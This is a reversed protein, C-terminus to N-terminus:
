LEPLNYRKQLNHVKRIALINNAYLVNYNKQDELLINDKEVFTFVQQVIGSFEEKLFYYVWQDRKKQGLLGANKLYSLHRSTKSQTYDLIQELDSICMDGNKYILYLIRVRSEESLAKFVQTGLHVSFNKLKM